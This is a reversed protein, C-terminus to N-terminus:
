AKASKRKSRLPSLKSKTTSAATSCPATAKKVARKIRIDVIHGERGTIRLLRKASKGVKGTMLFASAPGKQVRLIIFSDDQPAEKALARNEDAWDDWGGKKIALDAIATAPVRQQFSPHLATYLRNAKSTALRKERKDPPFGVAMRIAYRLADARDTEKPRRPFGDWEEDRIMALWEDPDEALRLAEAYVGAVHERLREQHGVDLVSMKKRLDRLNELSSRQTDAANVNASLTKGAKKFGSRSVSKTKSRELRKKSQRVM